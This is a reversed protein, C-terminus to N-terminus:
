ENIIKYFNINPQAEALNIDAIKKLEQLLQESFILAQWGFTERVIVQKYVSTFYM